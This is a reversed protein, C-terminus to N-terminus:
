QSAQAAHNRHHGHAGSAGSAAAAGSAGSAGRAGSASRPKDAPITIKAGEKLRDSGDIVVREGVQLGSKISTREGDVPGVKVARVTVTNDPKVVYVFQGMSGNLVAPTPVIVADKITDVLLRTNVFQNPFLRNKDNQFTARLKVTGTTTDIQNDLTELSGGELSTTNSRDYATVSLKAGTQTQQIIQQLNDESTTFIVSIPQLQTIVVIGNTLSPTVYNGPDVQRLGVRGSVPATIRAYVLDLKFTDVNAQDSKVTGEYQRVLSAQTDVQQSAISDQSLLTQYRKLDLRATQLLAQDRALTGQANELSIQYPRPDIQALVDGKKVMQGEKFYVDQLVGSLQPLVTVNALPTVTGLATLVVPMEGQAATAVHVPQAMNALGGPGGRGPRGGSAGSAGAAGSAGGPGGWPHWRWLVVGLIVLAAVILAINRGRHSKAAVPTNGPGGVPKGTASPQSGPQSAPAAPRTTESHKQQEDM